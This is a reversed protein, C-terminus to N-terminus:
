ADSSLERSLCPALVKSVDTSKSEEDIRVCAACYHCLAPEIAKVAGM